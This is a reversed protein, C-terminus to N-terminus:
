VKLLTASCTLKQRYKKKYPSSKIEKVIAVIKAVRDVPIWSTDLLDNLDNLLVIGGKSHRAKVWINYDVCVMVEKREEAKVLIIPTSYSLGEYLDEMSIAEPSQVTFNWKTNTNKKMKNRGDILGKDFFPKLQDESLKSSKLTWDQFRSTGTKAYSTDMYGVIDVVLEVAIVGDPTLDFQVHRVATSNPNFQKM